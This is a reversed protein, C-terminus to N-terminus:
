VFLHYGAEHVSQFLHHGAEHVSQVGTIPVLILETGGHGDPRYTVQTNAEQGALTYIAKQNNGYTVTLSNGTENVGTVTVGELDIVDSVHWNTLTGTLGSPNGLTLRCNDGAFTVGDATGGGYVVEVGGNNIITGAARGGGEVYENGGNKIITGTATGGAYVDEFGGNNITTDIATGEVIEVGGYIITGHTTGGAWVDEIGRNNITTGTADGGLWVQEIGGNNITTDKTTGGTSSLKSAAM